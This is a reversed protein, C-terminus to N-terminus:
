DSCGPLYTSYDSFHIQIANVPIPQKFIHSDEVIEKLPISCARFPQDNSYCPVITSSFGSINNITVLPLKYVRDNISFQADRALLDILYDKSPPQKCGIVIILAM